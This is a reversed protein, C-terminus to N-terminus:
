GLVEMGLALTRVEDWSVISGVKMSQSCFASFARRLPLDYKLLIRVSAKDALTGLIGLDTHTKVVKSNRIEDILRECYDVGSPFKLRAFARFFDHFLDQTLVELTSTGPISIAFVGALDVLSVSNSLAAWLLKFVSRLEVTGSPGSYANFLEEIRDSLKM